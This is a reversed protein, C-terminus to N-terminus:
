WWTTYLALLILVVVVASGNFSTQTQFEITGLDIGGTADKNNGRLSILIALALCLLFVLGVRDIFPLEPWLLKLGLSFVASGIAATLAANPTTRRWFIGTLFIVVIGPTFFGTLEQIYQFAQDFNGLLPKACIMALMMAAVAVSRGVRVLHSQGQNGAVKAYVDLTFITSISNIMSALSSVIAALLAAFVLGKIGTPLLTMALPYAQDPRELAPELVFM